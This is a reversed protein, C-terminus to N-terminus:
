GLEKYRKNDSARWAKLCNIEHQINKIEQVYKNDKICLSKMVLQYKTLLDFCLGIAKDQSLRRTEYEIKYIPYISNAIRILTGIETVIKLIEISMTEIYLKYKEKANQNAGFQVNILNVADFYIRFYNNDFEVKSKNQENKAVSM